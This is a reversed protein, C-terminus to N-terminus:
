FFEAELSNLFPGSALRALFDVLPPTNVSVNYRSSRACRLLHANKLLRNHSMGHTVHCRIGIWRKVADLGVASDTRNSIFPRVALPHARESVADKSRQAPAHE